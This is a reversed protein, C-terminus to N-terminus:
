RESVKSSVGGLLGSLVKVLGILCSVLFVISLIFCVWGSAEDDAKTGGTGQLLWSFFLALTALSILSIM